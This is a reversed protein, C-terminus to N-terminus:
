IAVRWMCARTLERHNNHFLERKASPKVDENHGLGKRQELLAYKSDKKAALLFRGVKM